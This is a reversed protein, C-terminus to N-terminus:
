REVTLHLRTARAHALDTAIRRNILAWEAKHCGWDNTPPANENNTM